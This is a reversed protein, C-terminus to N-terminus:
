EEKEELASSLISAIEDKSMGKVARAARLMKRIDANRIETVSMGSVSKYAQTFALQTYPFGITRCISETAHGAELLRTIKTLDRAVLLRAGVTYDLYELIEIAKAYDQDKYKMQKMQKM